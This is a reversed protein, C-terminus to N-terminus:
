GLGQSEQGPESRSAHRTGRQEGQPLQRQLVAIPRLLLHLAHMGLVAAEELNRWGREGLIPAASGEHAAAVRWAVSCTLLSSWSGDPVRGPVREPLREPVRLGVLYPVRFTSRTGADSLDGAVQRYSVTCDCAKRQRRFRCDAQEVVKPVPAPSPRLMRRGITWRLKHLSVNRTWVRVRVM